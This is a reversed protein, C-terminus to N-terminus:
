WRSLGFPSSYNTNVGQRVFKGQCGPTPLNQFNLLLKGPLRTQSTYLSHLDGTARCAKDKEAYVRPLMHWAQLDAQGRMLGM